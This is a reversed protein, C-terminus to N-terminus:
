RLSSYGKPRLLRRKDKVKIQIKDKSLKIFLTNGRKVSDEILM